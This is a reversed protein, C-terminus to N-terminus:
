RTRLPVVKKSGLPARKMVAEAKNRIGSTQMLKSAEYLENVEVKEEVKVDEVVKKPEEVKVAKIPEPVTKASQRKSPVLATEVKDAQVEKVEPTSPSESVTKESMKSVRKRRTKM